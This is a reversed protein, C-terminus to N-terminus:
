TKNLDEILSDGNQHTEFQQILRREIDKRHSDEKQVASHPLGQIRYDINGRRSEEYKASRESQHDASTRAEPNLLEQRGHHLTPTLVAQPLRPFRYVKCYSEEGTKMYVVKETCIAPLTNFFAIANSRTQCFQLGERQALKLNCRQVTDQHIRWKNKYVAIRPKDLDYRVGEQNQHIYM